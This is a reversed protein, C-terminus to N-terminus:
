NEKKFFVGQGTPLSLIKFKKEKAFKDWCKKQTLYDKSFCYDDLIVPAGPLINKYLIKKTLPTKSIYIRYKTNAKGASLEIM